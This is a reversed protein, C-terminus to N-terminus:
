NGWNNNNGNNNDYNNNDYNNNYNNSGNNNPNIDNNAKPDLQNYLNAMTAYMYPAVYIFAIGATICGLLIWGIFSIYYGFITEKKDKTIIKCKELAKSYSIEPDDALVFDLMSYRLMLMIGPIIFCILGLCIYLTSMIKAALISVIRNFSKYGSFLDKAEISGNKDTIVSLYVDALGVFIPLMILTCLISVVYYESGSTIYNLMANMAYIILIPIFCIFVRGSIDEKAKLKIEQRTM